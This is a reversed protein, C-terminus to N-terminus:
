GSNTAAAPNKSAPAPGGASQNVHVVLSVRRNRARGAESDNAAIPRTDAYGIARLRNVAIGREIFYRTVTTARYTSLEWNSPFQASHIPTNDTHGEVSIPYNNQGLIQAIRALVSEGSAKLNTSGEDFLVEDKIVLNVEHLTTVVDVKDKIDLPLDISPLPKATTETPPTAPTPSNHIATKVTVTMPATPTASVSAPTAAHHDKQRQPLGNLALALVFFTLLLTIIDLFSILWENEKEETADPTIYDAPTLDPYFHADPPQPYPKAM